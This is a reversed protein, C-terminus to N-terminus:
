FLAKFVLQLASCLILCHWRSHIVNYSRSLSRVSAVFHIHIRRWRRWRGCCRRRCRRWSVMLKLRVMLEGSVDVIRMPDSNAIRGGCNGIHRIDVSSRGIHYRRNIRQHMLLVMVVVLKMGGGGRMHRRLHMLRLGAFVVCRRHMM